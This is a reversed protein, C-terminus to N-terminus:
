NQCRIIDKIIPAALNPVLYDTFYSGSSSKQKSSRHTSRYSYKSTYNRYPKGQLNKKLPAANYQQNKYAFGEFRNKRSNLFDYQSKIFYNDGSTQAKLNLMALLFLSTFIITVIKKM